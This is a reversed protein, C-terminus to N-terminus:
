LVWRINIKPTLFSECRETVVKNTGNSSIYNFVRTQLCSLFTCALDRLLHLHHLILLYIALSSLKSM